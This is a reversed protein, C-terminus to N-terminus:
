RRVIRRALARAKRVAGSYFKVGCKRYQKRHEREFAWTIKMLEKREAVGSVNKRAMKKACDFVRWYEVERKELFGNRELCYRLDFVGYMMDLANRAGTGDVTCVAKNEFFYNGCVGCYQLVFAADIDRRDEAFRIKRWDLTEKRFLMGSISKSAAFVIAKANTECMGAEARSDDACLVGDAENERILRLMREAADESFKKVGDCFVLFDGHAVTIAVNRYEAVSAKAKSPLLRLRADAGALKDLSGDLWDGVCIVEIRPETQRLLSKICKKAAEANSADSLVFSLLPKEAQKEAGKTASKDKMTKESSM